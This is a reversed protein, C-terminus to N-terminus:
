KGGPQFLGLAAGQPDTFIAIRGVNPIDKPPLCLKGGLEVARAASADCNEVIVYGLWYPPSNPQVCQMMGAAMQEGASFITYEHDGGQFPQANWGFLQTYFGKAAAPDTTM